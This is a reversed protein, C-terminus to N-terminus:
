PFVGKPVRCLLDCDYAKAALIQEQIVRYDNGVHEQCTWVCDVGSMAAIEVARPDSLNMKTCLAVGGNKLKNLVKSPRMKFEKNM